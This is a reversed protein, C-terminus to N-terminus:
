PRVIMLRFNGEIERESHHHGPEYQARHRGNAAAKDNRRDRFGVARGHLNSTGGQEHEENRVVVQKPVLERKPIVQGEQDRQKREGHQPRLQLRAPCLASSDQSAFWSRTKGSLPVWIEASGCRMRPFLVSASTCLAAKTLLMSSLATSVSNEHGSSSQRLSVPLWEMAVGNRNRLSM